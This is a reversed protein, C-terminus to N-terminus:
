RSRSVTLSVKSGSPLKRGAAPSQSLVRGAKGTSKRTKVRGVRCHHRTLSTKAGQLTKARLNPVTCSAGAPGNPVNALGFYPSSGGPIILKYTFNQCSPWGALSLLYIGNPAGYALSEGDPSFSVRASQFNTLPLNCEDIPLNAPDGAAEPPPGTLQYLRIENLVGGNVDAIFAMKDGNIAPDNLLQVGASRDTFWGVATNNGGGLTYTAVEANFINTASTLLLHSNDIWAPDVYNEQGLTQNPQSFHTASGWLTLFDNAQTCLPTCVPSTLVEGGYAQNVGNPSISDDIPGLWGAPANTFSTPIPGALVKGDPSLRFLETGRTALITGDDAQSPYSWGGGTTVQREDSGTPSALWVDDGKIFVISAASAAAPALLLSVVVAVMTLRWGSM